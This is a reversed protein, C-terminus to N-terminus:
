YKKNTKQLANIIINYLYNKLQSKTFKQIKKLTKNTLPNKFNRYIIIISKLSSQKFHLKLTKTMITLSTGSALKTLRSRSM